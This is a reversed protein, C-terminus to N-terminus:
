WMGGSHGPGGTNGTGGTPDSSQNGAGGNNGSRNGGRGGDTESDTNTDRDSQSRTSGKNGDPGESMASDYAGKFGAQAFADAVLSDMDLGRAYANLGLMAELSDFVSIPALGFAARMANNAEINNGKMGLSVMSAVPGIGPLMSGAFMAGRGIPGIDVAGWDNASSRNVSPAETGERGDGSSRDGISPSSSPSQTTPAIAPLPMPSTYGPGSFYMQEGGAQGYVPANIMAGMYGGGAPDYPANMLALQEPTM